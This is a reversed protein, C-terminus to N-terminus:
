QEYDVDEIFRRAAAVRTTRRSVLVPGANKKAVKFTETIKVGTLLNTSEKTSEGTLRDFLEKDEGILLFRRSAPDYRFRQTIDTSERSGSLQGVNLVGAKIEASVNGGAPDSLVGGCTSCYLLRAAVAAREYGGAPRAFLIVLARHRTNFSGDQNEVPLDEILRLVADAAGDRNLDGSLPEGESKWGRPVFDSPARGEAPVARPDLLRREDQPAAAARSSFLLCTLIILARTL